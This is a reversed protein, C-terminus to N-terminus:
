ADKGWWCGLCGIIIGPFVILAQALMLGEFKPVLEPVAQSALHFDDVKEQLPKCSGLVDKPMKPAPKDFKAHRPRRFGKLRREIHHRGRPRLHTQMPMGM